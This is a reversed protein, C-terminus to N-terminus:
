IVSKLKLDNESVEASLIHSVFRFRDLVGPVPRQRLTRTPGVQNQNQGLGHCIGEDTKLSFM